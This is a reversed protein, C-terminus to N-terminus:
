DDDDGQDYHKGIRISSLAYQGIAYNQSLLVEFRDEDSRAAAVFLRALGDEKEEDTQSYTLVTDAIAVKDWAGGTHHVDVRKATAGSAKTQGATAVAVNRQQSLRKLYSVIELLAEWRDVGSPLQMKDAYDVIILDPVFNQHQELLDLYADLQKMTLTGQPFEKIVLHESNEFTMLKRQVISRSDAGSLHDVRRIKKRTHELGWDAPDGSRHFALYSLREVERKSMAFFTQVMRQCMEDESLELTVFLVKKARQHARAALQGLWWTKGTKTPAIYLHLKGPAPGLGHADLDPIGTPLSEDWHDFFKLSAQVDHIFHVGPDFVDAGKTLAASMIAEAAELGEETAKELERVIQSAARKTNQYRVFARAREVVYKSNISQATEQVSEFLQTIIGARDPQQDAVTEFLDMTHEGPPEKFRERYMIAQEAVERFVPDFSRGEVFSAIITGDPKDYCLLALLAEQIPRSLKM